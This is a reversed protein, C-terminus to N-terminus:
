WGSKFSISGQVWISSQFFMRLLSYVKQFEEQAYFSSSYCELFAFALFAKYYCCELNVHNKDTLSVHGYFEYISGSWADGVLRYRM